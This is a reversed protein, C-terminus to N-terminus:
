FNTGEGSHSQLGAKPLIAHQRDKKLISSTVAPSSDDNWSLALAHCQCVHPYGRSIQWSDGCTKIDGRGITEWCSLSSPCPHSVPHAQGHPSCCEGTSFGPGLRERKLLHVCHYVRLGLGSSASASAPPNLELSMRWVFFDWCSQVTSSSEAGPLM